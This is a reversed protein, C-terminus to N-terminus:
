TQRVIVASFETRDDLRWGRATYRTLARDLLLTRDGDARDIGGDQRRAAPAGM